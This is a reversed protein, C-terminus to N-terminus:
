RHDIGKTETDDYSKLMAKDIYNDYWDPRAKGIQYFYPNALM